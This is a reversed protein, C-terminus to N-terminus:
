SLVYEVQPFWCHEHTCLSYSPLSRPLPNAPNLSTPELRLWGSLTNPNEKDEQIQTLVEAKRSIFKHIQNLLTKNKSKTTNVFVLPKIKFVCARHFWAGM